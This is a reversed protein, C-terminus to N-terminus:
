NCKFPVKLSIHILKQVAFYIMFFFFLLCGVPHSIVNAFSAVSLPKDGFCVFLEYSEVVVVFCDM